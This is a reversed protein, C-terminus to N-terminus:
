KPRGTHCPRDYQWMTKPVGAEVKLRVAWHQSASIYRMQEGWQALPLAAQQNVIFSTPTTQFTTRRHSSVNTRRVGLTGAVHEASPAV